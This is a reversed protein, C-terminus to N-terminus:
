EEQFEKMQKEKEKLSKKLSKIKQSKYNSRWDKFNLMFFKRFYVLAALFLGLSYSINQGLYSQEITQTFFVFEPIFPFIISILVSLIMAVILFIMEFKFLKRATLFYIRFWVILLIVCIPTYLFFGIGLLIMSVTALRARFTSLYEKMKLQDQINAKALNKSIQFFNKKLGRVGGKISKKVMEGTTVVTVDAFKGKILPIIYLSLLLSGIGYVFILKDFLTNLYGSDFYSQYINIFSYILLVIPLILLIILFIGMRKPSGKFKKSFKTLIFIGLSSISLILGFGSLFKVTLLFVISTFNFIVGGFIFLFVMLVTAIILTISWIIISRKLYPDM